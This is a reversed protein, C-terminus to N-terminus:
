LYQDENRVLMDILSVLRRPLFYIMVNRASEWQGSDVGLFWPERRFRPSAYRWGMMADKKVDRKLEIKVGPGM